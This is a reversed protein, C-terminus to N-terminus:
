TEPGTVSKILLVSIYDRPVINGIREALLATTSATVTKRILIIDRQNKKASHRTGRQFCFLNQCAKHRIEVFKLVCALKGSQSFSIEKLVTGVKTLACVNQVDRLVRWAGRM